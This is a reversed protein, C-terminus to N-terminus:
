LADLLRNTLRKHSRAAGAVARQSSPRRLKAKL